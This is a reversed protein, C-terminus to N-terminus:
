HGVLCRVFMDQVALRWCEATDDLGLVVWCRLDRAAWDQLWSDVPETLAEVVGQLRDWCHSRTHIYPASVTGVSM